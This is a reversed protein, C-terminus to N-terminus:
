YQHTIWLIELLLYHYVVLDFTNCCGSKPRQPATKLAVMEDMDQSVMVSISQKTSDAYDRRVIDVGSFGSARLMWGSSISAPQSITLGSPAMTQIASPRSSRRSICILCRLTCWYRKATTKTRQQSWPPPHLIIEPGIFTSWRAFSAPTVWDLIAWLSMSSRPTSQSLALSRTQALRFSMNMLKDLALSCRGTPRQLM